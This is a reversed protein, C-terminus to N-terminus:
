SQSIFIQDQIYNQPWPSPSPLVPETQLAVCADTDPYLHKCTFIGGLIFYRHFPFISVPQSFCLFQKHSIHSFICMWPRYTEGAELFLLTFLFSLHFVMYVHQIRVEKIGPIFSTTHSSIPLLSIMNASLM